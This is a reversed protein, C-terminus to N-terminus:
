KCLVISYNSQPHFKSIYLFHYPAFKRYMCKLKKSQVQELVDKKVYREVIDNFSIFTPVIYKTNTSFFVIVFVSTAILGISADNIYKPLEQKRFLHTGLYLNLSVLVIMWFMYYRLKGSSPSIMTFISIIVILFLALKTERCRVKYFLYGLFLLNLLVYAGFFGGKRDDPGRSNSDHNWNGRFFPRPIIEFISYLWREIRTMEKGPILKDSFLPRTSNLMTKGVKIGIPYFPNGHVLTNKIPPAFIIILATSIILIQPILNPKKGDSGDYSEKMNRIIKFIAFSLALGVLPVLQIRINTACAAGLFLVLMDQRNFNKPDIYLRYTMLVLVSMGINGPLDVYSATAHVQVLPIALLAITSLFLPIKFYCKLFYIFIVLSLYGVLNTSEPRGTIYWFFGQLFEGYLAIGEYWSEWNPTLIYQDPTILGWLRAAYPQHYALSDWKECGDVVAKIGLLIILVLAIARLCWRIGQINIKRLLDLKLM